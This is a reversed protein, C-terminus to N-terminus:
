NWVALHLTHSVIFRPTQPALLLIYMHSFATLLPSIFFSFLVLQSCRRMRRASLFLMRPNL